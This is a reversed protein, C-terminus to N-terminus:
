DEFRIFERPNSRIKDGIIKLTIPSIEIFLHHLPEIDAFLESNKHIDDYTVAFEELNRPFKRRELVNEIKGFLSYFEAAEFYKLGEKIASWSKPQAYYYASWWYFEALSKNAHNYYAKFMFLAKQGTTLKQYLEEKVKIDKGRIFPVFPDFCAAGLETVDISEFVQKKM